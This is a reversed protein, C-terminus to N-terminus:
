QEMRERPLRPGPWDHEEEGSGLWAFPTAWQVRCARDRGEATSPGQVSFPGVRSKRHRHQLCRCNVLLRTHNIQVAGVFKTTTGMHRHATRHRPGTLALAEWRHSAADNGAPLFGSKIVPLCSSFVSGKNRHFVTKHATKHEKRPLLKPPFGQSCFM